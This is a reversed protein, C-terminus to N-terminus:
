PVLRGTRAIAVAWGAALLLLAVLAFAATLELVQDQTTLRLDVSAAGPQADVLAQYTGGTTEAIGALTTEDLATAVTYGDVEVTTGSTTGVGITDIHVGATQAVAAAALPDTSATDEGDSYVVVTASGWYGLDPVTGDDAIEVSEGTITSLSGLIAEGLSTGGSTTLRGLAEVALSHDASPAQATLAGGAFAVVGVDVTDPQDAALEQAAAVAAALRTPDADTASMSASVDVVIVLTGAARPVPITAEPRALGAVLVGAAAILLIWPVHRGRRSRVALGAARLRRSRARDALAYGAALAAVVLVAVVFVIPYQASM